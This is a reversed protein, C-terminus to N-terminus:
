TTIHWVVGLARGPKDPVFLMGRNGRRRSHKATKPTECYRRGSRCLEGSAQAGQGCLGALAESEILNRIIGFVRRTSGRRHHQRVIGAQYTNPLRFHYVTRQYADKTRFVDSRLTGDAQLPVHSPETTEVENPIVAINALAELHRVSREDRNWLRKLTFRSITPNNRNAYWAKLCHAEFQLLNSSRVDIYMSKTQGPLNTNVLDPLGHRHAEITLNVALREYSVLYIRGYTTLRWYVGQGARLWRNLNHRTYKVGYRELLAMLDARNIYNFGTERTHESLIIHLRMQASQHLGVAIRALEVDCRLSSNHLYQLDAPSTDAINNLPSVASVLGGVRSSAPFDVGGGAVSGAGAATAPRPQANEAVHARIADTFLAEVGAADPNTYQGNPSHKSTHYM